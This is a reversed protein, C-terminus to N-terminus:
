NRKEFKKKCYPQHAILVVLFLFLILKTILLPMYGIAPWFPIILYIGSILLLLTGIEGMLSLGKIQNQFKTVEEPSIKLLTKSFFLHAFSVGLGMALGIFHTILM